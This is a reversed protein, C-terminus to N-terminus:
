QREDGCQTLAGTDVNRSTIVGASRRRTVKEFGRLVNYRQVNAQAPVRM